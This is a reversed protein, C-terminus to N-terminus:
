SVRLCPDIEICLVVFNSALQLLYEPVILGENQRQCTVRPCVNQTTFEDNNLYVGLGVVTTISNKVANFGNFIAM